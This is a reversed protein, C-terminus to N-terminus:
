ACLKDNKTIRKELPVGHGRKNLDYGLQKAHASLKIPHVNFAKAVSRISADENESILKDAKECMDQWNYIRPILTIKLQKARYSIQSYTVGIEKCASKISPSGGNDVLHQVTKCANRWYTIESPTM